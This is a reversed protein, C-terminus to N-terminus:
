SRSTLRTRSVRSPPRGHVVAHTVLDRTRASIRTAGPAARGSERGAGRDMPAGRRVPRTRGRRQPRPASRRAVAGHGEPTGPAVAARSPRSRDAPCRRTRAVHVLGTFRCSAPETRLPHRAAKPVPPRHRRGLQIPAMQYLSPCGVDCTPGETASTSLRHRYPHRFGTTASTNGRHRFPECLPQRVNSQDGRPAGLRTRIRNRTQNLISPPEDSGQTGTRDDVEM